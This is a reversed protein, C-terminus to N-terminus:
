RRSATAGHRGLDGVARRGPAGIATRGVARATVARDQLAHQIRDGLGDVGRQRGARRLVAAIRAKSLKAGAAPDPALRLVERAEASALNTVKGKGIAQLLGPYFERLASRLEQTAKTRRWIADQTARALVAISRALKSDAHWNATSPPM